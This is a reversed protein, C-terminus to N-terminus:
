SSQPTVLSPVALGEGELGPRPAPDQALAPNFILDIVRLFATCEPISVGSCWREVEHTSVGLVAALREHGGAISAADEVSQIYLAKGM